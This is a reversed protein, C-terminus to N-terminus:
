EFCSHSFFTAKFWYVLIRVTARDDDAADSLDPSSSRVSTDSESVRSRSSVRGQGQSDASTSSISSPTRQRVIDKEELTDNSSVQTSTDFVCSAFDMAPLYHHKEKPPPPTDEM